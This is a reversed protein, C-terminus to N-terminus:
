VKRIDAMWVTSQFPGFPRPLRVMHLICALDQMYHFIHVFWIALCIFLTSKMEKLLLGKAFRCRFFIQCM